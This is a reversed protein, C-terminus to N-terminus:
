ADSDGEQFSCALSSLVHWQGRNSVAHLHGHVELIVKDFPESSTYVFKEGRQAYVTAPRDNHNVADFDLQETRDKIQPLRYANLCGSVGGLIFLRNNKFIDAPLALMSKVNPVLTFAERVGSHKPQKRFVHHPLM